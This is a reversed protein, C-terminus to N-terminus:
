KRWAELLFLGAIPNPFKIIDSVWRESDSHQTECDKFHRAFRGNLDSLSETREIIVAMENTKIDHWVSVQYVCEISGWNDPKDFITTFTAGLPLHKDTVQKMITDTMESM